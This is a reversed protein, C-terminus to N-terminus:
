TEAADRTREYLDVVGFRKYPTRGVKRFALRGAVAASAYNDPHVLAFLRDIALADFAHRVVAATAETAYGKGWHERAFLYSVEVQPRGLLEFRLLGARGIVDGTSREVVAWLGYGLARYYREAHARLADAEADVSAPPPTMFRMVDPNAYIRCLRAADTPRLARLALRATDGPATTTQPDTHM